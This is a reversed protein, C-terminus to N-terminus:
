AVARALGDNDACYCALLAKYGRHKLATIESMVDHQIRVVHGAGSQYLKIEDVLDEIALATCFQGIEHCAFSVEALAGMHPTKLSVVARGYFKTDNIPFSCFAVYDGDDGFLLVEALLFNWLPGGPLNNKRCLSYLKGRAQGVLDFESDFVSIANPKLFGSMMFPEDPPVTGTARMREFENGLFWLNVLYELFRFHATEIRSTQLDVRFLALNSLRCIKDKKADHSPSHGLGDFELAFLPQQSKDAVVFDFHAQLAYSGLSYTNFQGIDVVDAIRIKRYVEAQYRDAVPSIQKFVEGEGSTSLQKLM